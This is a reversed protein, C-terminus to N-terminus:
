RIEEPPTQKLLWVALLCGLVDVLFDFPDAHRNLPLVHQLVEILLGFSVGISFIGWVNINPTTSLQMYLGLTFTWSGFMLIHGLKDFSWLQSEGLFDSPMLTLLLTVLTLSIIGLPLLFLNDSLFSYISKPKM